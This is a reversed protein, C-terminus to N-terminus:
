GQELGSSRGPPTESAPRLSLEVSRCAETSGPLRHRNRAVLRYGPAMLWSLAPIAILRGIPRYIGGVASLCHGVALHGRQPQSTPEIWYAATTVDDVSLGYAEIDTSQWAQIRIRGQSRQEIWRATSTCFGCDADYILM